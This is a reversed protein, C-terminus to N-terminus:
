LLGVLLTASTGTSHVRKARIPLLTGAPIAQLTVSASDELLTVALNGAGGVWIGRTTQPLDNNNDPTIAFAKKIPEELVPM